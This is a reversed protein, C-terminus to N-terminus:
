ANEYEVFSLDIDELKGIKFNEDPNPVNSQQPDQFEVLNYNSKEM